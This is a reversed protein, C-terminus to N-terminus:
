DASYKVTDANTMVMMLDKIFRSDSM